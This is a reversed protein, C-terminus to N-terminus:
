STKESPVHVSESDETPVDWPNKKLKHAIFRMRVADPFIRTMYYSLYNLRGPVILSRKKFSQELTIKAVAEPSLAVMRSIFGATKIRERVAKSTKVGSPCVVSVHISSGRLEYKFPIPFFAAQSSVNIIYAQKKRLLDPLLRRTLLYPTQVHLNLMAKHKAQDSELLPGVSGFGANNILISVSIGEEDLWDMVRDTADAASLDTEFYRVDVNHEGAIKTATEPLSEGALSVLALHIGKSACEVALALGIGQSGGTILAYGEKPQGM